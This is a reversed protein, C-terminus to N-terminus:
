EKNKCCDIMSVLKTSHSSFVGIKFVISVSTCVYLGLPLKSLLIQLICYPTNYLKFSLTSKARVLAM